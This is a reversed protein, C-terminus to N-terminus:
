HNRIILLVRCNQCGVFKSLCVVDNKMLTTGTSPKFSLGDIPVVMVINSLHLTLDWTFYVRYLTTM